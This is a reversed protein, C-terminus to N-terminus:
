SSEKLDILYRRAQRYYYLCPVVEKNSNKIYLVLALCEKVKLYKASPM